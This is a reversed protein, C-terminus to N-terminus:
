HMVRRVEIPQEIVAVVQSAVELAREETVDLIWFGVISEKVEAYPGDTPVPVGGAFRVTRAQGPDVLGHSAVVEGAEQLETDLKGMFQQMNKIWEPSRTEVAAGVGGFMMIMYKM